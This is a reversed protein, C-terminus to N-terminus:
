SLLKLNGLWWWHSQHQQKHVNHRPGYRPAYVIYMIPIYPPHSTILLPWLTCERALMSSVTENCLLLESIYTNLYVNHALLTKISQDLVQFALTYRYLLVASFEIIRRVYYCKKCPHKHTSISIIARGSWAFYLKYRSTVAHRTNVFCKRHTRFNTGVIWVLTTLGGMYIYM